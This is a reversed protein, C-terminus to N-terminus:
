KPPAATILKIYLQEFAPVNVDFVVDADPEGLGPGAGARWSLTNGYGPTDQNVDIDTALVEHYKILSPDLWVAAALEDWMPYGMNPFRALYQAAPSTSATSLKHIEPTLKTGTTADTPVMTIKKWGAHRVIKAAEPDWLDNFDRRPTYIFQMAFEDPNASHPSFSSCMCVLEKANFAFHEDLRQALALNTVPGLALITIEGPYKNVQDILFNAAIESSAKTQPSGEPMPPIINPEHYATRDVSNYTPWTEMWAGKYGLKGHMEEWRKLSAMSNVLPYVSGRFVPVDTRHVLELMRLVHAVEEDQWGDGSEVTIGLVDVGPSQLLLLISQLNSGGPGFTDQDVIIKRRQSQAHLSAACLVCVSFIFAFRRLSLAFLLASQLTTKSTM